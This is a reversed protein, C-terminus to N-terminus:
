GRPRMGRALKATGAKPLLSFYWSVPKMGAEIETVLRTGEHELDLRLMDPHIVAPIKPEAGAVSPAFRATFVNQRYWPEIQSLNWIEWRFRDECVFGRANFHHQWYEPWQCNVHHQGRQGPAAASFVILDSHSVLTSILQPAHDEPLHEAVELCLVIEFTRGLDIQESLDQRGFYKSPFLLASEPIAVGDVGFIDDVGAELAARLWTGRGCGVDLLSKPVKGSFLKKLAVRAGLTTHLNRDHDYDIDRM